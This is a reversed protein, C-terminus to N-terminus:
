KGEQEGALLVLLTHLKLKVEIMAAWAYTREDFTEVRPWNTSDLLACIDHVLTWADSHIPKPSNEQQCDTLLRNARMTMDEWSEDM